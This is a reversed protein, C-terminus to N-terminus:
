RTMRPHRKSMHGGTRTRATGRGWRGRPGGERRGHAMMATVETAAPAVTTLTAWVCACILHPLAKRRRLPAHRLSKCQPEVCSAGCSARPTRRPARPMAHMHRYATTNTCALQGGLLPRGTAILTYRRPGDGFRSARERLQAAGAGAMGVTRAAALKRLGQRSRAQPAGDTDTAHGRTLTSTTPRADRTARRANARTAVHPSLTSNREAAACNSQM